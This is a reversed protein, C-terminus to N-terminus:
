REANFGFQMIVEMDQGARVEITKFPQGFTLVDGLRMRIEENQEVRVFLFAAPVTSDLYQVSSSNVRVVRSQGSALVLSRQAVASFVSGGRQSAVNQFPMQAAGQRAEAAVTERVANSAMREAGDTLMRGEVAATSRRGRAAIEALTTAQPIRM